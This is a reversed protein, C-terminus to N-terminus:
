KIPVRMQVRVPLGENSGAEWRPAAVLAQAINAAEEDEAGLVKIASVTGDKEVVFSATAGSVSKGCKEKLYKVMAQEGGPYRPMTQAMTYVLNELPKADYVKEALTQGWKDYRQWVGSKNGMVYDGTSEVKGNPHYFTFHGDEIRLEADFYSGEAKLTGNLEYIRGLFHGNTEGAPEKYFAAKGKSTPQLVPDLWTRQASAPAAQMLATLTLLFTLFATARM